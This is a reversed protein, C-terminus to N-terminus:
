DNELLARVNLMGWGQQNRPAHLDRCTRRLLLKIEVPSMKPEKSLVLAIAGSVIPTSMSTGSKSIYPYKKKTRYSSSCSWIHSGPAVLDPKCVCEDTPGRGSYQGASWADMSGVTIVKRSVGPVTITGSQPGQNGAAVVVVIGADWLWEVQQLLIREERSGAEKPMGISINVIRIGYQRQHKLIWQIARLVDSVKGNGQEDLVKLVILNCEPAMGTYKGLSMTGTGGVIGCVHSGHGNDDYVMTKGHVFDRFVQVRGVFDPHPAIGTDLVVVGIGQGRIKRYLTDECWYNVIQKVRKM